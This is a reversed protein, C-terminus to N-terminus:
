DNSPASLKKEAHKKYLFGKIFTVFTDFNEMSLCDVSTGESAIQASYFIQSPVSQHNVVTMTFFVNDIFINGIHSPVNTKVNGEEENLLELKVNRSTISSFAVNEEGVISVVEEMKEKLEAVLMPYPLRIEDM